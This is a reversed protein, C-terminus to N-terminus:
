WPGKGNILPTLSSCTIWINTYSTEYLLNYFHLMSNYTISHPLSMYTCFTHEKKLRSNKMKSLM